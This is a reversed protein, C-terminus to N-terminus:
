KLVECISRFNTEPFFGKKLQAHGDEFELYNRTADNGYGDWQPRGGGNPNGTKAFAVWYDSM